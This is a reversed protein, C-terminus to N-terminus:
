EPKIDMKELNRRAADAAPSDPALKIAQLWDERAGSNDGRLRRINGRELYAAVHDGDLELARNVDDAALDLSDLYRYASARFILADSSNPDIDLARNLDDVTEWYNEAAALVLSRDILLDLNNPALELGASLAANAREIEGAMLWANGAQGLLSIRLGADANEQVLRELRLASEGFHGLGYLAVAVCHRAAIGGGLDRWAMAREFGVEPQRMALEICQDYERGQVLNEAAASEPWLPWFLLAFLTIILAPRLM